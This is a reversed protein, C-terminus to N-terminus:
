RRTMREVSRLLDDAANGQQTGRGLANDLTSRGRRIAESSRAPDPSAGGGGGGLIDALIDGFGGGGGRGAGGGLVDGLIDGIGGGQGQGSAERPTPQQGGGLVDRLM